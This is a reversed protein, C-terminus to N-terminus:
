LFSLSRCREPPAQRAICPPKHNHILIIPLSFMKRKDAVLVALAEGSMLRIVRVVEVTQEAVARQVGQLIFAASVELICLFTDLVAALAHDGM